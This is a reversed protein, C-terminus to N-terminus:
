FVSERGQYITINGHKDELKMTPIKISREISLVKHKTNLFDIYCSGNEISIKYFGFMLKGTSNEIFHLQYMDTEAGDETYPFIQFIYNYKDDETTWKGVLNALCENYNEKTNM